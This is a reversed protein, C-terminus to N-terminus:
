KKARVFLFESSGNPAVWIYNLYMGTVKEIERFDNGWFYGDTCSCVVREYEEDNDTWSTIRQPAGDALTHKIFKRCEFVRM